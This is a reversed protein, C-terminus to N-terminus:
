VERVIYSFKNMSVNYIFTIQYEKEQELVDPVFDNPFLKVVEGEIEWLHLTYDKGSKKSKANESGLFFANVTSKIKMM